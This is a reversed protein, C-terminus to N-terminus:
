GGMKDLRGQFQHLAASIHTCSKSEHGVAKKGFDTSKWREDTPNLTWGNDQNDEIGFALLSKPLPHSVKQARKGFDSTM